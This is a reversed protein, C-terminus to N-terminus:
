LERRAQERARNVARRTEANRYSGIVARALDELKTRYAWLWDDSKGEAAPGLAARLEEIPVM